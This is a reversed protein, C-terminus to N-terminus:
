EFYESNNPWVEGTVVNYQWGATTDDAQATGDGATVTNSGSFSNKPLEGMVYPGYPFDKGPTGVIGESNTAGTLQGLGKSADITPYDGNHDIRYRQIQARFSLTNFDLASQKMDTTSSTFQPIITAALIAM